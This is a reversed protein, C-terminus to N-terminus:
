KKIQNAICKQCIYAWRSSSMLTTTKHPNLQSYQKFRQSPIFPYPHLSRSGEQQLILVLLWDLSTVSTDSSPRWSAQLANSLRHPTSNCSGQLDSITKFFSVLALPGLLFPLIALPNNGEVTGVATMKKNDHSGGPLSLCDRFTSCSLSPNCREQRRWTEM